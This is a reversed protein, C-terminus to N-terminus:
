RAIIFRVLTVLIAIFCLAGIFGAIIVHAPKITQHVAEASDRKRIGVFASLVTAVVRLFGPSPPQGPPSSPTETM